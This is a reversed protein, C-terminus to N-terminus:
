LFSVSYFKKKRGATLHLPTFLFKKGGRAELAAGADLLFHLIDLHGGTAAWHLATYGEKDAASHNTGIRLLEKVATLNGGKAAALLEQQNEEVTVNYLGVGATSNFTTGSLSM